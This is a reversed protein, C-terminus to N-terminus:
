YAKAEAECRFVLLGSIEDWCCTVPLSYSPGTRPFGSGLDKEMRCVVRSAFRMVEAGSMGTARRLGPKFRSSGKYGWVSSALGLCPLCCVLWVINALGEGERNGTASSELRVRGVADLLLLTGAQPPETM